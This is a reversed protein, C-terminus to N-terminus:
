KSLLTSYSFRNRIDQRNFYFLIYCHQCALKFRNKKKLIAIVFVLVIIVPNYTFEGNSYKNSFDNQM